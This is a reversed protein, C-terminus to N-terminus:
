QGGTYNGGDTDVGAIESWGIFRQRSYRRRIYLLRFRFRFLLLLFLFLFLLLHHHYHYHHHHHIGRPLERDVLMLSQSVM